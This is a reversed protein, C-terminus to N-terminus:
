FKINANVLFNGNPNIMPQFSVKNNTKKRLRPISYVLDLAVVAIGGYLLFYAKKKQDNALALDKNAKESTIKSYNTLWDDTTVLKQNVNRTKYVEYYGDAITKMQTSKVVMGGGSAVGVGLLVLTSGQIRGKEKPPKKFTVPPKIALAPQDEAINPYPESNEKQVTKSVTESVRYNHINVFINMTLKENIRLSDAMFDWIIQKNRGTKVGKGIDGSLTECKFLGSKSGLATVYVSDDPSNFDIQYKIKIKRDKGDLEFNVNSIQAQSYADLSLTLFFCFYLLKKNM